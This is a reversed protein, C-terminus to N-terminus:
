PVGGGPNGSVVQGVVVGEVSSDAQDNVTRLGLRERHDGFRQRGGNRSSAAQESGSSTLVLAGLRLGELCPEITVFGGRTTRSIWATAVWAASLPTRM